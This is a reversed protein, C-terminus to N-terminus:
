FTSSSQFSGNGSPCRLLPGTQCLGFALRDGSPVPLCDHREFVVWDSWVSFRGASQQWVSGFELTRRLDFCVFAQQGFGWPQEEDSLLWAAAGLVSLHWSKLFIEDVWVLVFNVCNKKFWSWLITGIVTFYCSTQLTWFFIFFNPKFTLM